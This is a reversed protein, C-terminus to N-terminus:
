PKAKLEGQIGLGDGVCTLTEVKKMKKKHRKTEIKLNKIFTARQSNTNEQVTQSPKELQNPKELQKPKEKVFINKFFQMIKSFLSM